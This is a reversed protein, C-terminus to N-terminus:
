YVRDLESPEHHRRDHVPHGRRKRCRVRKGGGACSGSFSRPAAARRSRSTALLDRGRLEAFLMVTVASSIGYNGHLQFPPHNTFMNSLTTDTLLGRFM